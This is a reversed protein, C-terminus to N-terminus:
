ARAEISDIFGKCFVAAWSDEVGILAALEGTGFEGAHQNVVADQNADVALARASAVSEDLAESSGDLVLFDIQVAIFADAVCPM